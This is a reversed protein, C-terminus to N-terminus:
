ALTFRLRWRSYPDILEILFNMKEFLEKMFDRRVLSSHPSETSLPPSVRPLNVSSSVAM